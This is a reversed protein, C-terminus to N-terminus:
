LKICNVRIALITNSILKHIKKGCGKLIYSGSCVKAGTVIWDNIDLCDSNCGKIPVNLNVKNYKTKLLIPNDPDADVTVKYIEDCDIEPEFCIESIVRFKECYSCKEQCCGEIKPVLISKSVTQGIATVSYDWTGESLAVVSWSAQVTTLPEINPIIQTTVDGSLLGLDFPLLISVPVDNM